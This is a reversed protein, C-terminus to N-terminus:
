SRPKARSARKTPREVIPNDSKSNSWSSQLFQRVMSSASGKPILEPATQALLFYGHVTAMVAATLEQAKRTDDPVVAQMRTFLQDALKTLTQSFSAHTEKDRLAEAGVFVWARVAELHAGEGRSLLADIWAFVREQPTHTNQSFHEIRSEVAKEILELLHILIARKDTYYYHVLGAALGAEKAIEGVTAGDYGRTSMVRALAWALRDRRDEPNGPRAMNTTHGVLLEFVCLACCFVRFLTKTLESLSAGRPEREGGGLCRM